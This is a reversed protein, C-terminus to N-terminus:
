GRWGRAALWGNGLLLIFAPLMLHWPDEIRVRVILAAIMLACLGTAAAGVWQPTPGLLLGLAGVIELVATLVRLKPVGYREFEVGMSPSVLCHVGYFFFAAASILRLALFPSMSADNRYAASLRFGVQVTPLMGVM